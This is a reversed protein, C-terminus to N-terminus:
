STNYMVIKSKMCLFFKYIGGGGLLYIQPEVVAQMWNNTTVFKYLGCFPQQKTICLLASKTYNPRFKLPFLM